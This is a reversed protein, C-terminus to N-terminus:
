AATHNTAQEQFHVIHLFGGSPLTALSRGDNISRTSPAARDSVAALAVSLNLATGTM